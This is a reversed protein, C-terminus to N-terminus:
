KANKKDRSLMNWVSRDTMSFRDALLRVAKTKQFNPLTHMTEYAELITYRRMSNENLLNLDYLFTLFTINDTRLQHRECYECFKNLVSASFIDVLQKGNKQM